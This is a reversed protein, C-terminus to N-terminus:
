FELRGELGFSHAPFTHPEEEREGFLELRIKGFGTPQNRLETGLRLQNVDERLVSEAFVTALMRDDLVGEGWGLRARLGTDAEWHKSTSFDPAGEAEVVATNWAPQLSIQLGRGFPDTIYGVDFSAAYEQFREQSHFLVVGGRGSVVFGSPSAFHFSAAIDAGSGKDAEGGDLRGGLEFNTTMLSEEGIEREAVTELALRFRYSRGETEEIQATEETEIAAVFADAKVAMKVGDVDGADGRMGLAAIGTSIDTEAYVVETNLLEASGLGGGLAAWLEFGGSSTWHLWPSLIRLSTKISEGTQDSGEFEHDVESESSTLAIGFVAGDTVPWDFGLQGSHLQGKYAFTPDGDRKIESDFASHSSRGWVALGGSAGGDLSVAVESNDALSRGSPVGAWKRYDNFSGASYDAAAPAIDPSVAEIGFLGALEAAASRVDGSAFAEADIDRGGLKARRAGAAATRRLAARDWVVNVMSTAASRGVGSLVYSLAKHQLDNRNTFVLVAVRTTEFANSQILHLQLDRPVHASQRVLVGSSGPEGLELVMDLGRISDATVGAALHHRVLATREGQELAFSGSALVSSTYARVASRETLGAQQVGASPLRTFQKLVWPVSVQSDRMQSLHVDFNVMPLSQQDTPHSVIKVSSSDIHLVATDGPAASESSRITGEAAAIQVDAGTSDRLAVTVTEDSEALFDSIVSVRITQRDDGPAFTLVREEENRTGADTTDLYDVGLIASGGFDYRVAVQSSLSKPNLRVVFELSATGAGDPETVAAQPGVISLSFDDSVITGTGTGVAIVGEGTPRSLEVIVTEDQEEVLDGFVTVTLTQEISGPTFILSGGKVRQYDLDATATGEATVRYDVTVTRTSPLSMEATFTLDQNGSNGERVRPSDISIVSGDDAVITGTGTAVTIVPNPEAAEVDSARSLTIVITENHEVATDGIIDITISASTDGAPIELSSTILAVYDRGEVATGGTVGYDVRVAETHVAGLSATFELEATGSNGEFVSPSDISLTLLDDNLITGTGLISSAGGEFRANSPSSLEIIVTEDPEATVDGLITVEISASNQNASIAVQSGSDTAFDAGSGTSVATSGIAVAYDLLVPLETAGTKTVEFQLVTSESAGGEVAKPSSIEILPADDDNVITGTAMISAVGSAFGVGGTPNSLTIEVTEDAEFTEDGTVVIRVTELVDGPRFALTGEAFVFDFGDNGSAATGGTVSYAVTALQSLPVSLSVDLSLTTSDGIDGEDVAADAISILPRENDRISGTGINTDISPSVGDPCSCAANFLRAMVTETTELENDGIVTVSIDQSLSGGPIFTLTGDAPDTYDGPAEATGDEILYNVTVNAPTESDLTVTFALTSTGGSDVEDVAPSNISLRLLDDNAITGTGEISEAGNEFEANVPGTLAIVVTEDAEALNDGNVAVEITASNQGPPISIPSDVTHTYDSDDGAATASGTSEIDYAVGAPLSSEGRRSVVFRLVAADGADGESVAPSSITLRPPADDNAVTGTAVIASKGNALDAGGAPNSLTIEVTESTEYVADDIITVQIPKSTEGLNHDFTLTGDELTVFDVGSVATGGTVSYDVNVTSTWAMSLTVEFDLMAPTNAGGESVVPDTIAILALENDVITGTGLAEGTKISADIGNPCSNCNANSLSVTLTEAGEEITDGIISVDITQILPGGPLFTLTGDAQDTYDDPATATGDELAYDVTVTSPTEAGLSVAFMLTGVDGEDGEIESPSDVSFALTDDDNITGTVVIGGSAAISGNAGHRLRYLPSGPVSVVITEDTEALIDGIVKFTLAKEFEGSAFGLGNNIAATSAADLTFDIGISASSDAPSGALQLDIDVSIEVREDHDGSKVIAFTMDSIEGADGEDLSQSSVTILPADDDQRITGRGVADGLTAGSGSPSSLEIELVDGDSHEFNTDGVIPVRIELSTPGGPMFTLMGAADSAVYDVYDGTGLASSGVSRAYADYATPAFEVTVDEVPAKSLSVTYVLAAATEGLAGDGEDVDPADSISIVPGVRQVADTPLSNVTEGYGAGDTYRLSVRLRKGIDADSLLYTNGGNQVTSWANSSPTDESEWVFGFTSPITDEDSVGIRSATLTEGSRATGAITPRGAPMRNAQNGRIQFMFYSNPPAAGWQGDSALRQSVAPLSWNSAGGSGLVGSTTRAWDPGTAEGTESSDMYRLVLFYETSPSLVMGSDGMSYGTSEVAHESPFVTPQNEYTWQHLIDSAATGPAGSVSTVIAVALTYEPNNSIIISATELRLNVSNVTYGASWDGTRFAQALGEVSRLRMNAPASYTGTAYTWADTNTILTIPDPSQASAGFAGSGALVLLFGATRLWRGLATRDLMFQTISRRM